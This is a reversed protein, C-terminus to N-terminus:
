HIRHQNSLLCPFQLVKGSNRSKNKEANQFVQVNGPFNRFYNVVHFCQEPRVGTLRWTTATNTCCWTTERNMVESPQRRAGQAGAVCAGQNDQSVAPLHEQPYRHGRQRPISKGTKEGGELGM